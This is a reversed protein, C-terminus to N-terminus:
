WWFNAPRRRCGTVGDQSQLIFYFISMIVFQLLIWIMSSQFMSFLSSKILYKEKKTHHLFVIIGMNQSSVHQMKALFVDNDYQFKQQQVLTKMHKTNIIAECHTSIM